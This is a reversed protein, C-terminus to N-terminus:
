DEEEKARAKLALDQELDAIRWQLCQLLNETGGDCDERCDRCGAAHKPDDYTKMLEGGVPCARACGPECPPAYSAPCDDPASLAEALREVVEEKKARVYRGMGLAGRLLVILCGGDWTCPDGCGCGDCTDDILERAAELAKEAKEARAILNRIVEISDPM